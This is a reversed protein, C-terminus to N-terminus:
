SFKIRGTLIMWIFIVIGKPYELFYRRWLRRPEKFIRYAWRLNLRDIFEPYYAAGGSEVLQDLFGGCTYGTGSWGLSRLRTLALEQKPTGMAFIVIDVDIFTSLVSDEEEAQYYGHHFQVQRFQYRTKILDAAVAINIESSGILGIKLSNEVAYNFVLPAISTDDFSFRRTNNRGLNRSLAALSEGDVYISFQEILECPVEKKLVLFSFPNIFTNLSGKEINFSQQIKM